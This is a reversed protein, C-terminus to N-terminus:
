EIKLIKKKEEDLEEDYRVPLVATHLPIEEYLNKVDICSFANNQLLIKVCNYSGSRVACHLATDGYKNKCEVQCGHKLLKFVCDYNGRLCALHLVSNEDKNVNSYDFNTTLLYEICKFSNYYVANHYGTNGSYGYLLKENVNNNETEYYEKIQHVDDRKISQILYYHDNIKKDNNNNNINLFIGSNCKSDYCDEELKQLESKSFWKKETFDTPKVKKLKCLEYSTPNRWNGEGCEDKNCVRIKTIKNNCKKVDIKKFRNLLYKPISGKLNTDFPDCCKFETGNDNDCKNKFKNKINKIESSTYKTNTNPNIINFDFDNYPTYSINCKDEELRCSKKTLLKDLYEDMEKLTVVGDKFLIELDNYRVDDIKNRIDDLIIELFEKNINNPFNFQIYQKNNSSIPMSTTTVNSAKSTTTVNSAKSTTSVQFHERNRNILNVIINKLNM